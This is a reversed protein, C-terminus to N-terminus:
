QIVEKTVEIEHGYKNLQEETHEYPCESHEGSIYGHVPCISFSPTLTFYPLKFSHSIKKILDRASTWDSIREGLFGHLVTGGTYKCQLEDQMTLAEFIDDTYGVPLQSSNTYYPNDKGAAIIDPYLRKDHKALRFATGEAPTAELNFIQNTEEQFEKLKKRMFDLVEIAFERGEKTTILKDRGVFNMCCENMGVLGITSFHNELSSLYRKTYPLLGKKMNKTVEKRKIELSNKALRMLRGLREFFEQRTKSLYGIRPLNITVVGISGTQEGSGFLGGTKRKLERVDLQLRCCMSRVDEPNLTSNIFNQFYPIGFKATLEFLLRANESNWNFDKTINFTPIPFTFIRGDMDGEMMIELFAKNIMDMDNQFDAYTEKLLKGGCIAQQKKMDDPIVWDFTLNTFPVQNGWRSTQNIGFLFEQMSQKVQKYTLNDNRVLPALYTDFSSFAQAGAWENQLTGFFNVIQGLVANFHSAPKAAVRGPVGNFGELLLQRLSWGACYAAFTGVSLDHIHFDAHRHADAIEKPYINNLTYEAVMAGSIHAQLGSMAYTANSNEKVRWDSKGVYGDIIGSIREMFSETDRLESRKQRYLIFTKATKAHGAKILVREVIDQIEEVTPVEDYDYRYELVTIVKESLKQALNKDKGGAAQAAKFIANFIKEYAFEVVRGDRKRVRM